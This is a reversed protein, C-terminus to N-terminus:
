CSWAEQSTMTGQIGGLARLGNTVFNLLADTDIAHVTLSIDASQGLLIAINEVVIKGQFESHTPLIDKIYRALQKQTRIRANPGGIPFPLPALADGSDLITNVRGIDAYMPGGEARSLNRQHIVVDIRYQLPFGATKWDYVVLRRGLCGNKGTLDAFRKQFTSAPIDLATAIQDNTAEPHGIIYAVIRKDKDDLEPMDVRDNDGPYKSLLPLRYGYHGVLVM